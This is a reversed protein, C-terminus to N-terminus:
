LARMSVERRVPSLSGVGTIAPSGTRAPVNRTSPSASITTAATPLAVRSASMARSVVVVGAGVLGSVRSSWRRTRTIATMASLTPPANRATELRSPLATDSPNTKAMPTVTASTGSAKSGV